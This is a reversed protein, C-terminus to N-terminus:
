KIETRYGEYNARLVESIRTIYQKKTKLAGNLWYTFYLNCLAFINELILTTDIDKRIKGNEKASDVIGAFVEILASEIRDRKGFAPVRVNFWVIRALEKNKFVNNLLISVLLAVQDIFSDKPNSKQEFEEKSKMAAREYFYFLVDVKTEFFSYFTGKAVNAKQTISDVSTNSFGNEKFLATAARLIRQKKREKEDLMRQLKNEKLPM